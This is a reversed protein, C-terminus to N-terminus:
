TIGTIDSNSQHVPICQCLPPQISQQYDWSIGPSDSNSQHVLISQCVHTHYAPHIAPLGPIDTLTVKTYRSVRVYPLSSPYSTTGPYEPVTMTVKTYRFVRVYTTTGSYGPVTKTVTCTSTLSPVGLIIKPHWLLKPNGFPFPVSCLVMLCM